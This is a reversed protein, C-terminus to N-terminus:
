ELIEGSSHCSDDPQIPCCCNFLSHNRGATDLFDDRPQDEAFEAIVVHGMCSCVRDGVQLNRMWLEKRFYAYARRPHRVKDYLRYIPMPVLLSACDKFNKWSHEDDWCERITPFGPEKM